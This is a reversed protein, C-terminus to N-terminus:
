PVLVGYRVSRITNVNNNATFLLRVDGSDIDASFTGLSPGTQLTGYETLWVNTGDQVLIVETTTFDSGSNAQVFYKASAHDTTAFTDLVVQGSSSTVVTNTTVNLTGVTLYNTVNANAVELGEGATTITVKAGFDSVSGVNLTGTVNANQSM